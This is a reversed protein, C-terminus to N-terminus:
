HFVTKSIETNLSDMEHLYKKYRYEGLSSRIHKRMQNTYVKVGKIKYNVFITVRENIVSFNYKNAIKREDYIISFPIEIEILKYNNSHIDIKATFYNYRSFCGYYHLAFILIVGLITIILAKINKKM